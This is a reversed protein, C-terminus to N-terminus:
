QGFRATPGGPKLVLGVIQEGRYAVQLHADGREFTLPFDHLLVGEGAGTCQGWQATAQQWVDRMEQATVTSRFTADGRESIAEVNGAILGELVEM